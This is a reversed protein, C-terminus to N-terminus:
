IITLLTNKSEHGYKEDVAIAFTSSYIRIFFLSPSHTTSTHVHLRGYFRLMKACHRKISRYSWFYAIETLGDGIGLLGFANWKYARWHALKADHKNRKENEIKTDFALTKNMMKIGDMRDGVFTITQFPKWFHSVFHFLMRLYKIFILFFIHFVRVRKTNHPKKIYGSLTFHVIDYQKINSSLINQKFMIHIGGDQHHLHHFSLLFPSCLLSIPALLFFKIILIHEIQFIETKLHFLVWKLPMLHPFCRGFISESNAVCHTTTLLFYDFASVWVCVCERLFVWKSHIEM